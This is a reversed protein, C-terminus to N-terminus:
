LATGDVDSDNALVTSGTLVTDENVTASDSTAVPTDNVATVTITVTATNSTATGDNTTYTFTDTGNFNATPTYTYSGDANFSLAGHATTSVLTATTLATGDADTDNSLVSGSVLATDENVTASDNTAVPTDNVATVTITVTATNSTATGDTTSYTFTDTGNFNTNPTYTYSGDANFNLTGHATTSVLTATTLAAGDADSDNSLVSGSVLATDENVTASDNTAVPTDNVATVTITVTATNSTATGDTTSYTFTDTGNFNATPTYTYSGDANFSLAGHTTTSLLTATPLATGDADSDNALVTSGSLVADENVTASNDAAVPTDNVPTIAIDVTATHSLHGGSGTNGLDDVTFVLTDHATPADLEDQYVVTGGLNGALLDNVQGVTGALTVSHTGSSSVTVGTTGATVTLKGETVSLTVEVQGADVDAIHLGTNHLALDTQETAAYETQLISATPADNVAALGITATSTATLPPATGTNVGDITTMTVTDSGTFDADGTYSLGSVAALTTNIATVSGTLTVTRQGSDYVIDTSGLGSAVDDRVTLAGHQVNLTVTIPSTGADPDTVRVNTLALASDETGSFPGPLQNTPRTYAQLTISLAQYTTLPGDSASVQVNYENNAGADLPATTDPPTIFSLAGTLADIQFLAQDAGGSIAYTIQASEPDTAQVTTVQTQFERISLAASSGGGDSGIVPPLNSPRITINLTQEDWTSAADSARVKVQYVNDGDSDQPNYYDVLANFRLEGTSSNITFLAQDAGGVLTYILVDSADPDQAHVTTVATTQDAVILSASAGGGGSVIVPTENVNIVNVTLTQLDRYTGDGAAVTVVYSNGKDNADLPNEYNPATAFRLVGTVSDITFRSADAGGTISYSLTTNADSDHASVTTVATTNETIAITAASGGGNSDIVPAADLTLAVGDIYGASIGVDAGQVLVDAVAVAKYNTTTTTYMSLWVVDTAAVNVKNTGVESDAQALSVLLDGTYLIENGLPMTTGILELGTISRDIKIDAGAILVSAAVDSLSYRLIDVAATNGDGYTFLFTGAAVTTGYFSGITTTQEVLALGRISATPSLGLLGLLGSTVTFVKTFTGASYDGAVTPRFLVVDNKGASLSNVSTLTVTAPVSFLVDGRHATLGSSLVVDRSVWAIDDMGTAGFAAADFVHSFTGGTATGYSLNPNELALVETNTISNTGQWGPSNNASSGLWLTNTTNGSINGQYLWAFAATTTSGTNTAAVTPTGWASGDWTTYTLRGATTQTGLVLHNTYRDASLTVVGAVGGGNPGTQVASWVGTSTLTQYGVTNAGTGYVAMLDGTKGEFAVAVTPANASTTRNVLATRNAWAQSGSNNWVQFSTSTQLGNSSILGMAIRNSNPDSALTVWQPTSLGTYTGATAATGWSSGDFVSFYVNPDLTKAYAVMAHGSKAEYAVAIATQSDASVGPDFANGWASGDWILAHAESNADSIVLALGDGGPQAAIQMHQPAAGTYGAVTAAATWTSGNYVSYRLNTGDNWLLMADGSTQEYAVAFGQRNTPLGSGLTLPIITSSTGSIVEGKITGATNVGVVISEDRKPSQAATLLTLQGTAATSTATGNAVGDWVSLQPATSGSVSWIAEGKSSPTASALVGGFEAQAQTSPALAAEIHGSSVELQWDGGQLSAGTLDDSAAVDAGTLAALGQVLAQGEAQAGVDCGYILLDADSTLAEGWAAIDQARTLLTQEDLVASGLQASGSQGHSMLHVASVDRRNALTQTIRDLGDEDAGILVVEIARGQAAQRALDALLTAQDPVRADIFVIDSGSSAASTAPTAEVLRQHSPGDSGASAMFAAPAFDASYLLRPEMAEAIPRLTHPLPPSRM